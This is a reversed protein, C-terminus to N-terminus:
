RGWSIHNGRTRTAGPVVKGDKLAAMIATKDPVKTTNVFRGPLDEVDIVKVAWNSLRLAIKTGNPLVVDYPDDVTFGASEREAELVNRALQEIYGTLAEQRRAMRLWPEAQAKYLDARAITAERIAKLCALRDSRDALYADLRERMRRDFEDQEAKAAEDFSAGAPPSWDSMSPPSLLSSAQEVVDNISQTLMM